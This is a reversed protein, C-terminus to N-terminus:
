KTINSIWDNQSYKPSKFINVTQVKTELITEDLQGPNNIWRKASRFM